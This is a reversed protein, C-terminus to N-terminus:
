RNLPTDTIPTDGKQLSLSSIFHFSKNVRVIRCRGRQGFSCEVCHFRPQGLKIAVRGRQIADAALGLHREVLRARRNALAQVRCRRDVFGVIIRRAFDDEGAAARLRVVKGDAAKHVARRRLAALMQNGRFDLMMRYQVGTFRQFFLAIADSIQIDILFAM